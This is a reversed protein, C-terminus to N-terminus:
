ANYGLAAYYDSSGSAGSQDSTPKVPNVPGGDNMAKQLVQQWKQKTKETDPNQAAGAAYGAQPGGGPPPITMGM